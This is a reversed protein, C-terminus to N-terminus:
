VVVSVTELRPLGCLQKYPIQGGRGLSGRYYLLDVDGDVDGGAWRHVCWHWRPHYDAGTIASALGRVSSRRGAEGVV